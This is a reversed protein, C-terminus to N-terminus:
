RGRQRVRSPRAYDERGERCPRKCDLVDPISLLSSALAPLDPSVARRHRLELQVRRLRVVRVNGTKSDTGYCVIYGANNILMGKTLASISASKLANTTLLANLDLLKASTARSAPTSLFAKSTSGNSIGVIFGGDDIVNVLGSTSPAIQSSSTGSLVGLDMMTGSAFAPDWYAAHSGAAFNATGAVQGLVNIGVVAPAPAPRAAALSSPSAQRTPIIPM